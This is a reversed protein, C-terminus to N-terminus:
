LNKASPPNSAGDERSVTWCEVAEVGAGCAPPDHKEIAKVDVGVFM